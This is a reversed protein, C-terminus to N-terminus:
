DMFLDSSIGDAQYKGQDTLTFVENEMVILGESVLGHLKKLASAAARTDISVLDNKDVGWKTRLRTLIYDNFKERIGLVEREHYEGKGQALLNMYQYNNAINWGRFNGDFSHASPGVGLYKEGLWYASNHKSIFGTKAFNSIEYQEYGAQRCFDMLYQFQDLVDADEPINLKGQRFLSGLLTRREITLGYSSLHPVGLRLFQDLQNKWYDLNKGPIGYILDITINEFGAQGADMVSNKAQAADHARNMFRLVEDDFSQIGISLRNIGAKKFLVLKEHSLDDPNCELTIEPDKSISFNRYVADLIRKLDDPELMGPTGGGLYITKVEEGNLYQRRENLESILTEIM